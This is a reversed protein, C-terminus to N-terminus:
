REGREVEAIVAVLLSYPVSKLLQVDKIYFTCYLRLPPVGLGAFKKGPSEQSSASPPLILFPRVEVSLLSLTRARGRRREEEGEIKAAFDLRPQSHPSIQPFSSSLFTRFFCLCLTLSAREETWLFFTLSVVARKEPNPSSLEGLSDSM